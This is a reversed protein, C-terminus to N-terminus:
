LKGHPYILFPYDSVCRPPPPPNLTASHVPFRSMSISEPFHQSFEPFISKNIGILVFYSEFINM